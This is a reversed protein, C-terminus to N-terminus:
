AGGEPRVHHVDGAAVIRVSGDPRVVVLGGDAAILDAVGEVTGAGGALEARVTTGLTACLDAYEDHLSPAGGPGLADIDGDDDSWRRVVAALERLLDALLASRDLDFGAVALSTATPVPLEGASQAVNLGIGVVVDSTGPVAQTLIGAVKRWPGLGGVEPEGDSAPLLVDNPWKLAAPVGAARLVRVLAVGSVLPLWGLVEAPVDPRLLVSVTLAARPPTEWTRGARGLGATQHEAALALPADLPSRAEAAAQAREILETNTSAATPVVDVSSWAGAPRLTSRRIAEVDLPPIDM